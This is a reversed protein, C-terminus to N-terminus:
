VFILNVIFTIIVRRLKYKYKINIHSSHGSLELAM